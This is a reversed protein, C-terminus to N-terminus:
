QLARVAEVREGTAPHTDFFGGGSEGEVRQIWSLADVMTAKGDHGARRLIKVAHADAESEESRTYASLILNGAVPAIAGSGPLVQDLILSGIQLGTALTQTKAAHGLDAHAIEHALVGRLQQDTSKAMLGTTVYFDGGGANAANIHPDDWVTVRVEKTSLPRDMHQILPTMIRQLRQVQSAPLQATAPERPRETREPARREPTAPGTEVALCGGLALSAMIAAVAAAMAQGRMTTM